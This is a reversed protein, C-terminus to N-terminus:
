NLTESKLKIIQNEISDMLEQLMWKQDIILNLTYPDCTEFKLIEDFYEQLEFLKYSCKKYERELNEVRPLFYLDQATIMEM